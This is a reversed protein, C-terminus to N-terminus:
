NYSKKKIEGGNLSMSFFSYYSNAKLHIAYIIEHSCILFFFLGGGMKKFNLVGGWILKTLVEVREM